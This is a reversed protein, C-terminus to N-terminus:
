SLKKVMRLGSGNDYFDVNDMIRRMLFVGRGSVKDSNERTTPDPINEFDFGKGEDHIDIIVQKLGAKVSVCFM